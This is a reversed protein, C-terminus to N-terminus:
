GTRDPSGTLSILSLPARHINVALKAVTLPGSIRGSYRHLLIGLREEPKSYFKRKGPLVLEEEEVEEEKEGSVEIIEDIGMFRPM